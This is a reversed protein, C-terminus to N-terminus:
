KSSYVKVQNRGNQKAEYLAQDAKSIFAEITHTADPIMSAAGLSVTVYPHVKSNEHPIHLAKVNSRIMEAIKRAGEADTKPLVVVFEEGGYRAVFDGPRNVSAAIEKAVGILCDDGKIHGYTDNYAKFYDIDIMIVSLPMKERIGTKFSIEIYQDFNRRNPVGTLGDHNSLSLLEGNKKQLELVEKLKQELQAAKEKLLVAQRALELFISVKSKLIIPEIPKFLYDVAGIEYGKFMYKQEKYIATVFIIPIHRTRESGRMFEAVEFGDMEPMQIDLLVLAFEHELMLGLAENGSAAKIINCNFDELLGELVLLNEPRDDVILISIGSDSM